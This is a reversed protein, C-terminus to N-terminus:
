VGGFRPAPLGVPGLGPLTETTYIEEVSPAAGSGPGQDWNLSLGGSVVFLRHNVCKGMRGVRYTFSHGRDDRRRCATGYFRVETAEAGRWRAGVPGRAPPFLRAGRVRDRGTQASSAVRRARGTNYSSVFRRYGAGRLGGGAYTRSSRLSAARRLACTGARDVSNPETRSMARCRKAKDAKVGALAASRTDADGAPQAQARAAGLVIAILLIAPLIKGEMRQALSCSSHWGDRWRLGGFIGGISWM